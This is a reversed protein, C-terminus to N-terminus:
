GVWRLRGGGTGHRPIRSVAGVNPRGHAFGQGEDDGSEHEGRDGPAGELLGPAVQGLRPREAQGVGALHLGGALGQRRVLRAVARGLVDPEGAVDQHPGAVDLGSESTHEVVGDQALVPGRWAAEGALRQVQDAPFVAVERAGRDEDAAHEDGQELRAVGMRLVVLASAQGLLGDLHQEAVPEFM